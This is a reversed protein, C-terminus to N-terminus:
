LADRNPNYQARWSLRSREHEPRAIDRSMRGVHSIHRAHSHILQRRQDGRQPLTRPSCPRMSGAHAADAPMVRCLRNSSGGTSRPLNTTTCATRGCASGWAGAGHPRTRSAGTSPSAISEHRGGLTAGYAAGRPPHAMGDHLPRLHVVLLPLVRGVWRRGRTTM